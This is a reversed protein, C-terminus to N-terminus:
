GHNAFDKVMATELTTELEDVTRVMANMQEVLSRNHETLTAIEADKVAIQGCQATYVDNATALNALHMDEIVRKNWRVIASSKEWSTIHAGCESNQCIVGGIEGSREYPKLKTEGCFPCPKIDSM